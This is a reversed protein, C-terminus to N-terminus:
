ITTIPILYDNANFISFSHFFQTKDRIRGGYFDQGYPELGHPGSYSNSLKRRDSKQYSFNPVIYARSIEHLQLEFTMEM